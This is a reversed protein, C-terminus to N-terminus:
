TPSNLCYPVPSRDRVEWARKESFPQHHLFALLPHLHAVREGGGSPAPTGTMVWRREARLAVAM